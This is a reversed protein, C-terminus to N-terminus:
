LSRSWDGTSRAVSVYGFAPFWHLRGAFLSILMSGVWFGPLAYGALSAGDVFRGLVGGRVASFVGLCVGGVVIVLVSLSVLSLTVSYRDAIIKAVPEGSLLSTGRNGRLANSVWHAYEEYLPLALGLQQRRAAYAAPAGQRGAPAVTAFTM